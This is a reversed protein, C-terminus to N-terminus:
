GDVDVISYFTNESLGFFSDGAERAAAHMEELLQKAEEDQWFSKNWEMRAAMDEHTTVIAHMGGGFMKSILHANREPWKRQMLRIWKKEFELGKKGLDGAPSPTVTYSFVDYIM